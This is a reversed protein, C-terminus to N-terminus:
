HPRWPLLGFPDAPAYHDDDEAQDFLSAMMTWPWVAMQAVMAQGNDGRVSSFIQAMQQRTAEAADMAAASAKASPSAVTYPTGSSVLMMTLPVHMQAWSFPMLPYVNWPSQSQAGGPLSALMTMQEGVAQWFATAMAMTPSFPMTGLATAGLQNAQPSPALFPNAWQFSMASAAPSVMWWPWCSMVPNASFPDHISRRQDTQHEALMEDQWVSVAALSAQVGHLAADAVGRWIRMQLSLDFM